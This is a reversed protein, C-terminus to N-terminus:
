GQEKRGLLYMTNQTFVEVGERPSSPQMSMPLLPSTMWRSGDPARGESDNYLDGFLVWNIVVWNELRATPKAM